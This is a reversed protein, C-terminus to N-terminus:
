LDPPLDLLDTLGQLYGDRRLAAAQQRRGWLAIETVALGVVVLAVALEVDDRNYITLSNYPVTLFFDFSVAASLASVVGAIRDGSASAAGVALGLVMAATSSDMSGRVLGLVAGVAVPLLLASWRILARHETTWDSTM